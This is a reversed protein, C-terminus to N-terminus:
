PKTHRTIQDLEEGLQPLVRALQVCFPLILYDILGKMIGIWTMHPPPYMCSSSSVHTLYDILGKMIGIWTMHPPPYMCTVHPPPPPYREYCGGAVPKNQRM